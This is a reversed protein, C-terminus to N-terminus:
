PNTTTEEKNMVNVDVYGPEIEVFDYMSENALNIKMRYNGPEIVSAFNLDLQIDNISLESVISSVDSIRVLITGENDQLDTMLAGDLNMVPVKNVDFSFEKTQIEEILVEVRVNGDTLGNSKIGPPLVLKEDLIFSTTEVGELVISETMISQISDVIAIDGSLVVNEPTVKVDVIRYGEAPEGTVDPVITVERNKGVTLSLTTYNM